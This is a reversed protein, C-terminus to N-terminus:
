TLARIVHGAPRFLALPTVSAAPHAFAHQASDLQVTHSNPLLGSPHQNPLPAQLPGARGPHLPAELRGTGAGCGGFGGAGGGGVGCPMGFKPGPKLALLASLMFPSQVDSLFLSQFATDNNNNSYRGSWAVVGSGQVDAGPCGCWSGAGRGRARAGARGRGPVVAASVRRRAQQSGVGVEGRARARSTASTYEFVGPAPSM